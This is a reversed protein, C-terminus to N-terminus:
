FSGTSGFGEEARSSKTHLDIEEIIVTEIPQILIHAIREGKKIVLDDYGTNLLIVGVEGRYGSDIVGALVDTGKKFSLGSRPWILGVYGEPIEMSIGAPILMRQGQELVCDMCSFLDLGADGDHSYSPIMADKNVKKIKLKM